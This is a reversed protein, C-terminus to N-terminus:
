KEFCGIYLRILHFIPFCSENVVELKYFQGIPISRQFPLMLLFLDIITLFDDVDPKM